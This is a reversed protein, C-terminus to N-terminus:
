SSVSVQLKIPKTPFFNNLILTLWSGFLEGEGRSPTPNLQFCYTNKPLSMQLTFYVSYCPNDYEHVQIIRRQSRLKNVTREDPDTMISGNVFFYVFQM